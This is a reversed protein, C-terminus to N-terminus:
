AEKKRFIRKWIYAVARCLAPIGKGCLLVTLLMCLIGLAGCILGGGIFGIGIVTHSFLEAFGAAVLVIGVIYLVLTAAAIGIVLSFVTAFVSVIVGILFFLLMIWLPSLLVAGVVLLVIAWTPLGKRQNQKDDGYVNEPLVTEQAEDKGKPEAVGECEEQKEETKKVLENKRSEAGSAFGNETFTGADGGGALGEKVIKAVQEPTGLAQIVEQENEAGADNFYDNYYQLAEERENPSIDFLLQELQRMFEWRSM